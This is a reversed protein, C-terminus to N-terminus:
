IDSIRCSTIDILERISSDKNIRPRFMTRRPRVTGYGSSKIRRRGDFTGNSLPHNQRNSLCDKPYTRLHEHYLVVHRCRKPLTLTATNSLFSSEAPPMRAVISLADAIGDIDSGPASEDVTDM